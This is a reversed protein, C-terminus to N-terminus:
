RPDGFTIIIDSINTSDQTVPLKIKIKNTPPSVPQFDITKLEEGINNTLQSELQQIHNKQSYLVKGVYTGGSGLLFLVITSIVQLLTTKDFM